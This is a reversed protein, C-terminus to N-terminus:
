GRRGARRHGVPRTHTLSGSLPCMSCRAASPRTSGADAVRLRGLSHDGDAALMTRASCRVLRRTPKVGGSVVRVVTSVSGGRPARRRRRRCRSRRRRAAQQEDGVTGVARRSLAVTSPVPPACGPWRGPARRRRRRRGRRRWRPPPRPRGRAAARARQAAAGAVATPPPSRVWSSSMTQRRAREEVRRREGGVLHHGDVGRRAGVAHEDGTPWESCPSASSGSPRRATASEVLRTM